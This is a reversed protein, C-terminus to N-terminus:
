RKRESKLFDRLVEVRNCIGYSNIVKIVFKLKRWEIKSYGVLCVGGFLCWSVRGIEFFHSCM